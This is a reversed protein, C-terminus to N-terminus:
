GKVRALALPNEQLRIPRKLRASLRTCADTADKLRDFGGWSNGDADVCLFRMPKSPGDNRVVKGRVIKGNVTRGNIVNGRPDSFLGYCSGLRETSQSSGSRDRIVTLAGSKTRVAVRQPEPQPANLNANLIARREALLERRKARERKGLRAAM